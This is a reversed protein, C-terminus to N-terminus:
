YAQDLIADVIAVGRKPLLHRVDRLAQLAAECSVSPANAFVPIEGVVEYDNLDFRDNHRQAGAPLRDVTARYAYKTSNLM